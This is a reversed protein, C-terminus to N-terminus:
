LNSLVEFAKEEISITYVNGDEDRELFDSVGNIGISGADNGVFYWSNNHMVYWEGWIEGSERPTYKLVMNLDDYKAIYIFSKGDRNVLEMM